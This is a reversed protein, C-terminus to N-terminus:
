IVILLANDTGFYLILLFLTNCVQESEPQITFAVNYLFIRHNRGSAGIHPGSISCFYRM